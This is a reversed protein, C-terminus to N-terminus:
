LVEKAITYPEGLIDTPKITLQQINKMYAWFKTNYRKSEFQKYYEKQLLNNRTEMGVFICEDEGFDDTTIYCQLFYDATDNISARSILSYYSEPYGKSTKVNITGANIKIDVGNDSEGRVDIYEYQRNREFLLRRIALEGLCGIYEVDRHMHIAKEGNISRAEAMEM